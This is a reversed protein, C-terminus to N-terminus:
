LGKNLADDLQKLTASLLMNAERFDDYEDLDNTM